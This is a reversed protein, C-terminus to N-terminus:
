EEFRVKVKELNEDMFEKRAAKFAKEYADKIDRGFWDGAILRGHHERFERELNQGMEVRCADLRERVEIEALQITEWTLREVIEPLAEKAAKRFSSALEAQLAGKLFHGALKDLLKARIAVRVDAPLERIMETADDEGIHLVIRTAM